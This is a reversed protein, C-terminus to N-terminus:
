VYVALRSVWLPRLAVSEIEGPVPGYVKNVNYYNCGVHAPCMWLFQSQQRFDIRKAMNPYKNALGIHKRRCVLIAPLIIGMSLLVIIVNPFEPVINVERATVGYSFYIWKYKGNERITDNFWLIETLGNDIIVAYPPSILLKPVSVRCFGFSQTESSRSVHLNITRTSEDYAFDAICSNSVVDVRYDPLISFAQFTGMLPFQDTNVENITYATDGLGDHNADSGEYDSWYNGEGEVNWKNETSNQITTTYKNAVFNNHFIDNFNSDRLGIGINNGQVHNATVSFDSCELLWIGFVKNNSANNRSVTCLQSDEPEIGYFGNNCAYNENFVCEEAYKPWIGMGTNDSVNNSCVSCNRSFQVVIAYYNEHANNQVISTNRCDVLYIGYGNYTSEYGNKNVNNGSVTCDAARQLEMGYQGNYDANCGTITCNRSDAIWMGDFNSTTNVNRITSGNVFALLVGQGNRSLNLDCITINTSNAAAVYGADFPIQGDNKNIWYYIPKGDVLNSSDVYNIFHPLYRGLVQFNYSNHTMTNRELINNGSNRLWIGRRCYKVENDSVTCNMVENLSIGIDGLPPFGGNQVTFSCIRSNSSRIVVGNGTRNADIITVSRDEGMLSISKNIVVREYYIGADVQITHGNLTEPANIASQIGTYNLGTALNHVSYSDSVKVEVVNLSAYSICFHFLIWLSLVIVWKGKM